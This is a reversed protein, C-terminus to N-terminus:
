PLGIAVSRLVQSIGSIMLQLLIQLLSSSVIILFLISSLRSAFVAFIPFGFLRLSGFRQDDVDRACQM